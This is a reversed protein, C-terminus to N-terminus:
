SSQPESEIHQSQQGGCKLDCRRQNPADGFCPHVVFGSPQSHSDSTSTDFM